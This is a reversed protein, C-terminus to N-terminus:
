VDEVEEILDKMDREITYEFADLSDIDTSGDDLREDKDTVDKNWVADSFATQLSKCDDTIWFRGAGMLRVTCRIRDIIAAKRAKRVTIWPFRKEVANRISNGLVTEANDYYVSEVNCYEVDIVEQVFDCFLEDLRNSDIDEEADKAMIRKSMVSIVDAYDDTYGRAVFSHGSQNGGFDLGIEISVIDTKKFQKYEADSALEDLM